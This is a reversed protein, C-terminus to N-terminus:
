FRLLQWESQTRCAASHGHPMNWGDAQLSGKMEYGDMLVCFCSSADNIHVSKLKLGVAAANTLNYIFSRWKLLITSQFTQFLAQICVHGKQTQTYKPNMIRM